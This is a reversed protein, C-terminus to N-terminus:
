CGLLTTFSNSLKLFVFVVSRILYGFSLLLEQERVRLEWRIFLLMLVGSIITFVGWSMGAFAINGQLEEVVFVAYFPAFVGVVFTFIMNVAILIRLPRSLNAGPFLTAFFGRLIKM